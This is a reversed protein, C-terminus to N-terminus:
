GDGCTWYIVLSKEGDGATGRDAAALRRAADRAALTAMRAARGAALVAATQSVSLARADAAGTAGADNDEAAGEQRQVETLIAEMRQVIDHDERLVDEMVADAEENTRLTRAGSDDEGARPSAAAAVWETLSEAAGAESGSATRPGAGATVEVPRENGTTEMRSLATQLVRTLAEEETAREEGPEGRGGASAAGGTSAAESGAGAGVAAAAAGDRASAGGLGLQWLREEARSEALAENAMQHAEAVLQRMRALEPSGVNIDVDGNEGAATGATASSAGVAAATAAAVPVSDSSGAAGGAGENIIATGSTAVAASTAATSTATSGTGTEQGEAADASSGASTEEAM